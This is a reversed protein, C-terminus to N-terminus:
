KKKKLPFRKVLEDAAYQLRGERKADTAEEDLTSQAMGRWIVKRNGVEGPLMADLVLSGQTAVDLSTSQATFPPLGWYAVSPLFQGMYQGTQSVTILVYYHLMVNPQGGTAENLGHKTMASAVFKRILPDVRTKVAAPDDDKTRAMMVDGAETDWAWTQIASFDFAPDPEAKVKIKAAEAVVVLMFCFVPVLLKKV